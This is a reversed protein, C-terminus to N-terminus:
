KKKGKYEIYKTLMSWKIKNKYKSNELNYKIKVDELIFNDEKCNPSLVLTPINKELNLKLDIYCNDNLLDLQDKGFCSQDIEVVLRCENEYSWGYLKAYYDLKGKSVDFPFDDKSANKLCYTSKKLSINGDNNEGDGVYVVDILEITFQNIAISYDNNNFQIKIEKTDSLLDNITSQNFSLMFGNESVDSYLMWMAINESFSYTFSKVFRIKGDNCLNDRDILDNWNNGRTLRISSNRLTESIAKKNGYFSYKKHKKGKEKLKQHLSNKDKIGNFFNENAM